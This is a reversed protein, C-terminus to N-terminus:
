GRMAAPSSGFNAELEPPKMLGLGMAHELQREIGDAETRAAVYGEWRKREDPRAELYSDAVGRVGRETAVHYVATALEPDRTREARELLRTLEELAQGPDKASSVSGYVGDYAGRRAARLQAKEVDSITYPYRHEFVAREARGVREQIEREQAEIANRYEAEAEAFAEAIHRRKAEESYDPHNRIQALKRDLGQKIQLTPTTM